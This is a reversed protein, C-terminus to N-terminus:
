RQIRVHLNRYFSVSVPALSVEDKQGRGKSVLQGVGLIEFVFRGMTIGLIFFNFKQRLFCFNTTKSTSKNRGSTDNTEIVYLSM